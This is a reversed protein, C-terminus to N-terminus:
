DDFPLTGDGLDPAAVEVTEGTNPHVTSHPAPPPPQSMNALPSKFPVATDDPLAAMFATGDLEPNSPADPQPRRALEEACREGFKLALKFNQRAVQTNLESLWFVSVAQWLRPDIERRDLIDDAEEPTREILEASVETWAEFDLPPPDDIADYPGFTPEEIEAPMSM